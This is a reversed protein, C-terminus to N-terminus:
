FLTIIQDTIRTILPELVNHDLKLGWLNTLTDRATNVKNGLFYCWVQFVNTFLIYILKM